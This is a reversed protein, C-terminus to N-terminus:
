HFLKFHPQITNGGFHVHWNLITHPHKYLVNWMQTCHQFSPKAEKRKEKVLKQQRKIKKNGNQWMLNKLKTM